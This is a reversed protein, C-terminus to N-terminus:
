GMSEHLAITDMIRKHPDSSLSWNSDPELEANNNHNQGTGQSEIAGYGSGQINTLVVKEVEGSSPMFIVKSNSSKAMAQMAELYRIQMAPKSALIDAAKRMLKASEVEAKANIIKSEGIRKAEAAMSLSQQVNPPLELDKILIAEIHVGWDQATKYIISEIAEAVEERKEVVEQLMRSGIVDRLTTQTREMIANHINDIGFVARQPDTINYYVVSTVVVSVNDRTFCRQAPIERINIKVSVVYLKESWTNVYVWGPDVVRTLAGFTQVLGVDGQNVQKYPNSCFCTYKGFGGFFAGLSNIFLQYSEMPPRDYARAFSRQLIANESPDEVRQPQKRIVKPNLEFSSVDAM